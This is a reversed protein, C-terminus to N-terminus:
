SNAQQNDATQGRHWAQLAGVASPVAELVDLILPAAGERNQTDAPHVGVELANGKIDVAIDRKRCSVKGGPDHGRPAGVETAKV